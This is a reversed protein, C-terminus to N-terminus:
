IQTVVMYSHVPPLHIPALPVEQKVATPAPPLPRLSVGKPQKPPTQADPSTHKPPTDLSKWPKPPQPQTVRAPPTPPQPQTVRAPPTPQLPPPPLPQIVVQGTLLEAPLDQLSDANDETESKVAGPRGNSLESQKCREGEDEADCKDKQAQSFDRGEEPSEQSEQGNDELETEDESDELLVAEDAEHALQEASVPWTGSFYRAPCSRTRAISGSGQPKAPLSSARKLEKRPGPGKGTVPRLHCPKPFPPFPSAKQVRNPMARRLEALNHFMEQLRTNEPEAFYHKLEATASQLEALSNSLYATEPEAM